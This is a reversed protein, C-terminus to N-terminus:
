ARAGECFYHAWTYKHLLLLFARTLDTYAHCARVPIYYVDDEGHRRKRTNLNPNQINPLSQKFDASPLLPNNLCTEAQIQQILDGSDPDPDSVASPPAATKTWATM